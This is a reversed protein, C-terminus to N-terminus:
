HSRWRPDGDLVWALEQEVARGVEGLYTHGAGAAYRTHVELGSKGIFAASREAEDRCRKQGCVFLVRQGGAGRFRESLPVNWEGSGGEVLVV